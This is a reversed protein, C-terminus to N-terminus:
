YASISTALDSAYLFFILFSYGRFEGDPCSYTDVGMSPDLLTPKSEMLECGTGLLIDWAEMSTYQYNMSDPASCYMGQTDAGCIQLNTAPSLGPLLLGLLLLVISYPRRM